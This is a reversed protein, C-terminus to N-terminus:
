QLQVRQSRNQSRGLIDKWIREQLKLDSPYRDAIEALLGLRLHEEGSVSCSDKSTTKKPSPLEREVFDLCDPHAFRSLAFLLFHSLRKEILRNASELFVSVKDQTVGLYSLTALALDSNEGNRQRAVKWLREEVDHSRYGIECLTKISGEAHESSTAEKLLTDMIEDRLRISQDEDYQEIWDRLLQRVQIQDFRDSAKDSSGKLCEPLVHSRIIRLAGGPMNATSDSLRRLIDLWAPLVSVASDPGEQALKLMWDAAFDLGFVDLLDVSTRFIRDYAEAGAYKLLRGLTPSVM